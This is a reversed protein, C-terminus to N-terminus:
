ITQSHKWQLTCQRVLALLVELIETEMGPLCSYGKVEVIDYLSSCYYVRSDLTISIDRVVLLQLNKKRLFFELYSSFLLHNSM